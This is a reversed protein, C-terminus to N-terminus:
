PPSPQVPTPPVPDVRRGAELRLRQTAFRDADVGHTVLVVTGGSRRYDDLHQLVRAANAPDLNGTPEDAQILPPRKILARALAVRQREGASLTAPRAQRRETLGLAELWRDAEGAGQRRDMRGDPLGATVNQHVTLYPVLHFLQFVFGVSEARFRCRGTADIGTLDVADIRLRGRQPRSLAGLLLLLTSKGSGSAGQVVVFEGRAVRLDLDAVGAVVGSQASHNRTLGSAEILPTKM